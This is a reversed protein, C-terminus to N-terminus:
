TLPVRHGNPTTICSNDESWDDSVEESGEDSQAVSKREVQKSVSDTRCRKDNSADQNAPRKEASHLSTELQEVRALTKELLTKLQSKEEDNQMTATPEQNQKAEKENEKAHREADKQQAEQAEQAKKAELEKHKAKLAENAERAENELRLIREWLIAHEVEQVKQTAM